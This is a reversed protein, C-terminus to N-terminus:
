LWCVSASLWKALQQKLTKNPGGQCRQCVSLDLYLVDISVQKNEKGEPCCSGENCCSRIERDDM